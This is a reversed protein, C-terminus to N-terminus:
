CHPLARSKGVCGMSETDTWSLLLQRLNGVCRENAHRASKNALTGSFAGVVCAAPDTYGSALEDRAQTDQSVARCACLHEM